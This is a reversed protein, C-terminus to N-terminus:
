QSFPMRLLPEGSSLLDRLSIVFAAGFFLIAVLAVYHDRTPLMMIAPIVFALSALCFVASFAKSTVKSRSIAEPDVCMFLSFIGCASFFLIGVVHSGLPAQPKLALALLARGAMYFSGLVAPVFLVLRLAPTKRSIRFLPYLLLVILWTPHLQHTM